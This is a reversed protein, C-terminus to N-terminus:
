GKRSNLDALDDLGLTLNEIVADAEHDSVDAGAILEHDPSIVRGMEVVKAWIEPSSAVMPQYVKEMATVFRKKDKRFAYIELLKAKLTMSEPHNHIAEKVLEEALGYRRYALYVDVKGLTAEVDATEDSSFNGDSGASDKSKRKGVDDQDILPHEQTALQSEDGIYSGFTYDEQSLVSDRRRRLIAYLLLLVLLGAAVALYLWYKEAMALWDDRSLKPTANDAQTKNEVREPDAKTRPEVDSTIELKKEAATDKVRVEDVALDSGTKSQSLRKELREISRDREALSRRLAELKLELASQLDELEKNIELVSQLERTADAMRGKLGKEDAADVAGVSSEELITNEAEEADTEVVRLKAGDDAAYELSEGETPAQTSDEKYSETSSGVIAESAAGKLQKWEKNQQLFARRAGVVSLKTITAKDPVKLITGQRLFNVNEHMFAHRNEHLIAMMMQEVSVSNDPRLNNAIVWLTDAPKVPGYQNAEPVPKNMRQPSPKATSKPLASGSAPGTQALNVDSAPPDLLITYERFVREGEAAVEILFNLIPERVGDKTTVHIYVRQDDGVITKFVLKTLQLPRDIGAKDFADPGALSVRVRNAEDSDVSVLEIRANLPENLFSNVSIEKFGLGQAGSSLALALVLGIIKSHM